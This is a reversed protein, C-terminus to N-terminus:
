LKRSAMGGQRTGQRSAKQRLMEQETELAWADMDRLLGPEATYATIGARIKKIMKMDAKVAEPWLQPRLGHLAMDAMIIKLNKKHPEPLQIFHRHDAKIFDMYYFIPLKLDPPVVLLNEECDQYAMAFLYQKAQLRPSLNQYQRGYVMLAQIALYENDRVKKYLRPNDRRTEEFFAFNAAAEHRCELALAKVGDEPADKLGALRIKAETKAARSADLVLKPRMIKLDKMQKKLRTRSGTYGKM